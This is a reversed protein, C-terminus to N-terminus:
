FTTLQVYTATCGWESGARMRRRRQRRPVQLLPSGHLMQTHDLYLSILWKFLQHIVKRGIDFGGNRYTPWAATTTLACHM